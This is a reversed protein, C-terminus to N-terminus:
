VRQGRYEELKQVVEGDKKGKITIRAVIKGDEVYTVRVVNDFIFYNLIYRVLVFSTKFLMPSAALLGLAFFLQYVPDNFIM